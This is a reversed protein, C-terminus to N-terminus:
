KELPTLRVETGSLGHRVTIERVPGERGDVTCKLWGKRSVQSTDSVCTVHGCDIFICGLVNGLLRILPKRELFGACSVVSIDRGSIVVDFLSMGFWTVGAARIGCDTRRVALMCSVSTRGSDMAMNYVGDKGAPIDAAPVPAHLSLVPSCGQVSLVALMIFCTSLRCKWMQRFGTGSRVDAM